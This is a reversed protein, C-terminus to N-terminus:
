SAKKICQEELWILYKDCTPRISYCETGCLCCENNEFVKRLKEITTVDGLLTNGNPKAMNQAPEQDNFISLSDPIKKDCILCIGNLIMPELCNCKGEQM